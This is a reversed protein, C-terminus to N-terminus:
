SVGPLGEYRSAGDRPSELEGRESPLPPVVIESGWMATGGLCTSAWAIHFSGTTPASSLRRAARLRLFEIM